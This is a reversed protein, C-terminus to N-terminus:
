KIAVLSAFNFCQFWVDCSERLAKKLGTRGHGEKKWCRFMADGLHFQGDCDIVRHANALRDRMAALAVVMKFTSGPPYMGQVAKNPLPRYKNDLLAQYDAVSIGRVFLNPDFSPASGIAVIDGNTVDIVVAAPPLM